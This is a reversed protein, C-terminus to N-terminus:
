LLSVYAYDQRVYLRLLARSLHLYLSRKLVRSFKSILKMNNAIRQLESIL